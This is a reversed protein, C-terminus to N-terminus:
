PKRQFRSSVSMPAVDLFFLLHVESMVELSLAQDSVTYVLVSCPLSELSGHIHYVLMQPTRLFHTFLTGPSSSGTFDNLAFNPAFNHGLLECLFARLMYVICFPCYALLRLLWWLLSFLSSRTHLTKSFNMLETARSFHSYPFRSNVLDLFSFTESSVSLYM